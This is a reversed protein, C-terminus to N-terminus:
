DTWTFYSDFSWYEYGPGPGPGFSFSQPIVLDGQSDSRQVRVSRGQEDNVDLFTTEGRWEVLMLSPLGGGSLVNQSLALEDGNLVMLYRGDPSWEPRGVLMDQQTDAVSASERTAIDLVFTRYPTVDRDWLDYAISAGDPRVAIKGIWAKDSTSVRFADEYTLSGKQALVLVAGESTRQIGYALRNDPTWDYRIAGAQEFPLRREDLLDGSSTYLRLLRDSDYAPNAQVEIAFMSGDPSLMPAKSITVGFTLLREGQGSADAHEVCSLKGISSPPGDDVCDNVGYMLSPSLKSGGILFKASRLYRETDIRNDPRVSSRVSAIGTDASISFVVGLRESVIGSTARLTGGIAPDQREIEDNAPEGGAGESSCSATFGLVVSLLGLRLANTSLLSEPKISM